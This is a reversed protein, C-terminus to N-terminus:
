CDAVGPVLWTCHLRNPYRVTPVTEIHIYDDVECSCVHMYLCVQLHEAFQGIAFLSANRVIRQEDTM